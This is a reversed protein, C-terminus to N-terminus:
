NEQKQTDIIFQNAMFNQPLETKTHKELIILGYIFNYSM